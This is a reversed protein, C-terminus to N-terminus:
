EDADESGKMEQLQMQEAVLTALLQQIQKSDKMNKKHLYQEMNQLVLIEIKKPFKVYEMEITQGNSIKEVTITGFQLVTGWVGKIEYSIGQLDSYLVRASERHFWGHWAIDVIGQDTVLWADLFYDFFNRLWWILLVLGLIGMVTIMGRAPNMWVILAACAIWLSPWFLARVGLLWHKHVVRNLTEDDELHKKFLWASLM